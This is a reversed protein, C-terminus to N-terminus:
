SVTEAEGLAAAVEDERFRERLYEALKGATQDEPRLGSWVTWDDIWKLIQDRSYTRMTDNDEKGNMTYFFYLYLFHRACGLLQNVHFQGPVLDLSHVFEARPLMAGGARFREADQETVREAVVRDILVFVVSFLLLGMM